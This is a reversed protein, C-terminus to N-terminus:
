VVSGGHMSLTLASSDVFFDLIYWHILRPCLYLCTRFCGLRCHTGYFRRRRSVCTWSRTVGASPGGWWARVCLNVAGVAATTSRPSEHGCRGGNRHRRRRWPGVWDLRARDGTGALISIYFYMNKQFDKNVLVPLCICFFFLIFVFLTQSFYSM